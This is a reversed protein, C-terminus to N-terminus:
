QEVCGGTESFYWLVAGAAIGLPLAQAIGMIVFVNNIIAMGTIGNIVRAAQRAKECPLSDVYKGAYLKLPLAYLGFPNAEVAGDQTLAIATTALDTYQYAEVKRGQPTSACSALLATLAIILAKSM